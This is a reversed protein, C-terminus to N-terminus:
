NRSHPQKSYMGALEVAVDITQSLTQLRYLQTLSVNGVNTDSGALRMWVTSRPNTEPHPGMQMRRVFREAPIMKRELHVRHDFPPDGGAVTVCYVHSDARIPANRLAASVTPEETPECVFVWRHFEGFSSPSSLQVFFQELEDTTVATPKMVIPVIIALRHTAPPLQKTSGLNRRVALRHGATALFAFRDVLVVDPCGTFAILQTWFDLGAEHTDPRHVHAKARENREGVSAGTQPTFILLLAVLPVIPCTPSFVKGMTTTPHCRILKDGAVRGLVHFGPRVIPRLLCLGGIRSPGAGGHRVAVVILHLIIAGHTVLIQVAIEVVVIAPLLRAPAALQGVQQLTVTSILEIGFDLPVVHQHDPNEVHDRYPGEQM